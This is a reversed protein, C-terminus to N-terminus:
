RLTAFRIIMNKLLGSENVVTMGKNRLWRLAPNKSAFGRAFIEMLVATVVNDGRRSRQYRSLLNKDGPSRGELHAQKVTMALAEADAFGINAGQGALPHITHAADGILALNQAVYRLSHQQALPFSSRQDVAVIRGLTAESLADLLGALGPEDLALISDADEASLVISCLHPDSLPLFALVGDATFWQRAVGGHERETEIVTVIGKQHYSWRLAHLDALKRVKSQSGDAGVLLATHWSHNETSVVYGDDVKNIEALRTDWHLKVTDSEQLRDVLAASLRNNEVIYGLGTLGLDEASFTVKGTGEGDWVEMNSYAPASVEAGISALFEWAAIGLASVRANIGSKLVWGDRHKAIPATVEPKGAQDVVAVRLESDALAAGLALGVLGGGVVLVDVDQPDM